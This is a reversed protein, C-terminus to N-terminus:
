GSHQAFTAIDFMPLMVSLVVFAVIVGMVIIIAPELITAVDRLRNEGEEEYFEGITSTVTGLTGTKEATMIMQVAPGPLFPADAMAAGLGRGNLVEQQLSDFLERYHINNVSTRTLNLGEMLPVGSEIMLGLLRFARGALLAKTVDGVAPANLMLGDWWRRGSPSKRFSFFAFVACGVLPGWLWMRHRLQDSIDLLLQTIAPLPNDFQDFVEAFQPLVFFMLGFVVSTSVTALMIPYALLTRITGRLKMEARQLQALRNLVEPLRGSAEGAAVSAVYANGFVHVQSRLAVSIAKGASVDDHVRELVKRLALNDCQRSLTRIAGALDVGAKAMISLQSTLAMLDRQTIKSKRWRRGVSKARSAGEARISLAFMGKDRLQQQVQAPSDSVILGTSTEGANSKATYAYRM